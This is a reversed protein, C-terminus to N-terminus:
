IQNPDKSLPNSGYRIQPMILHRLLPDCQATNPKGGSPVNNVDNFGWTRVLKLGSQSMHQFVLDIDADKKQFPLWYANTGVLYKTSGDITFKLGNARPNAAGLEVTAAQAAVALSLIFLFNM